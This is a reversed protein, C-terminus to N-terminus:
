TPNAPTLAGALYLHFDRITGEFNEGALPGPDARSSGLAQQLKELKERDERNVETWLAIRQAITDADLDDGYVSLTWKVHVCDVSVPQLSLSALLSAAQSAVQTPFVNFLFSRQRQRDDLGPAGKGRSPIGDPYNANYSTFAPASPGKTCLETPTYGRLTQPHVVSLHYGEMFNEVLCKWNCQWDEEASHVIRFSGTEYPALTEALPQLQEALPRPTDALSVYLFGQWIECAFEALRCNARDFGANDMHAARLLGGDRGYSWAHYSCILRKVNGRGEALLMGRHRCVNAFVRIVADDGRMVILPEGLLRAAFYDGPEPIEDARGLCHWGDRLVTAKELEFLDPSTYYAGHLGMPRDAPLAATLRLGDLLGPLRGHRDPLSHATM